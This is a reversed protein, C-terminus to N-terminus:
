ALFAALSAPIANALTEGLFKRVLDAEDPDDEGPDIAPVEAATGAIDGTLAVLADRHEEFIMDWPPGALRILQAATLEPPVGLRDALGVTEVARLIEVHRSEHLAADLERTTRALWKVEGSRVVLQTQFVKFLLQDLVERLRWLTSSLTTFGTESGDRESAM